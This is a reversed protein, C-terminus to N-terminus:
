LTRARANPAHSEKAVLDYQLLLSDVLCRVTEKCALTCAAAELMYLMCPATLKARAAHFRAYPGGCVDEGGLACGSRDCRCM